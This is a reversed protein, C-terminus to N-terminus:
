PEVGGLAEVYTLGKARAMEAVRARADRLAEPSSAAIELLAASPRERSEIEAKFTRVEAGAAFVADTVEHVHSEFVHGLLLFAFPMTAMAGSVSIVRHEEKLGALLADINEKPVDIVVRVPIWDGRKKGHEHLVSQVNGGFRSITALAASLQGPSDRLELSLDLKM